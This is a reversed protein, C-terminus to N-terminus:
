KTSVVLETEHLDMEEDGNIHELGIEIIIQDILKQDV